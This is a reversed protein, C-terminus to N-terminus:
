PTRQFRASHRRRLDHLHTATLRSAWGPRTAIIKVTRVGGGTRQSIQAPELASLREAGARRQGGSRRAM